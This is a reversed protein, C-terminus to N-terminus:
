NHHCVYHSKCNQKAKKKGKSLYPSEKGLSAKAALSTAFDLGSSTRVRLEALCIALRFLKAEMENFYKRHESFDELYLFFQLFFFNVTM